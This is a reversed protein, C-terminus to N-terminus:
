VDEKLRSRIPPGHHEEDEKSDGGRPPRKLAISMTPGSEDELWFFFVSDRLDINAPLQPTCILYKKGDRDLREQFELRIESRM